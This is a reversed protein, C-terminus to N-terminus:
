RLLRWVASYTGRILHLEFQTVTYLDALEARDIRARGAGVIRAEIDAMILCRGRRM